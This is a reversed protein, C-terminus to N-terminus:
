VLFFKQGHKAGLDSGTTNYKFLSRSISSDAVDEGDEDANFPKSASSQTVDVEEDSKNELVDDEENGEDDDGHDSEDADEGDESASQDVNEYIEDDDSVEAEEDLFCNKKRDKEKIIVDDEILEDDDLEEEPHYPEFNLKKTSSSKESFFLFFISFCLLNNRPIRFLLILPRPPRLPLSYQVLVLPFNQLIVVDPFFNQSIRTFFHRLFQFQSLVLCLLM